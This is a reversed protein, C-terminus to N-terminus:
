LNVQKFDGAIIFAGNLHADQQKTIASHRQALALKANAQPPIYVAMILGVTGAVAGLGTFLLARTRHSRCM